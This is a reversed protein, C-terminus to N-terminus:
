SGGARASAPCALAARVAPRSPGALPSSSGILVPTGHFGGRPRTWSRSSEPLDARAPGRRRGARTTRRRRSPGALAHECWRVADVVPAFLIFGLLAVGPKGLRTFIRRFGKLRRLLREIRRTAQVYRPQAGLARRACALAAAGACAGLGLGIPPDRQRRARPGRGAAPRRGVQWAPEAAQARGPRRPGTGALAPARRRDPCGRCGCPDQRGPRRAPARGTPPRKGQRGREAPARRPLPATWRRRRPSPGRSGSENRSNSSGAWPATGPWRNMRMHIARWNGFRGPLGRRERGHGAVHLIANLAQPDPARVNGRRAPLHPAIREYRAETLEM